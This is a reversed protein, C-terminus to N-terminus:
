SIAFVLLVTIWGYYTDLASFPEVLKEVTVTTKMSDHPVVSSTLDTIAGSNAIFQWLYDASFECM